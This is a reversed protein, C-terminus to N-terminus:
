RPYYLYKLSRYDIRMGGKKKTDLSRRGLEYNIM